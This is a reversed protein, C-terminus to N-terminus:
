PLFGIFVRSTPSAAKHKSGVVQLSALACADADALPEPGSSASCISNFAMLSCCRCITPWNFSSFCAEERRINGGPRIRLWRRRGGRQGNVVLSSASVVASADSDDLVGVELAGVTSLVLAFDVRLNKGVVDFGALHLNEVTVQGQLHMRVGHKRGSRGAACALLAFEPLHVVAQEGFLIKISGMQIRRAITTAIASGAQKRWNGGARARLGCRDLPIGLKRTPGTRESCVRLALYRIM